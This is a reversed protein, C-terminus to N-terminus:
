FCGLDAFIEQGLGQEVTSLVISAGGHEQGVRHEGTDNRGTSIIRRSCWLLAPGRDRNANLTGAANGLKGLQALLAEEERQVGLDYGALLALILLGLHNHARV